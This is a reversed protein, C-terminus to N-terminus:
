TVDKATQNVRNPWTALFDGWHMAILHPWCPGTFVSVFVVHGICALNENETVDGNTQM